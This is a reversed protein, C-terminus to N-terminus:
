TCPAELIFTSRVVISDFSGLGFGCFPCEPDSSNFRVDIVQYNFGDWSGRSIEANPTGWRKMIGGLSTRSHFDTLFRDAEQEGRSVLTACSPVSNSLSASIRAAKRTTDTVVHVQLIFTGVLVLGGIMLALLPAIIVLEAMASGKEKAHLKKQLVVPASDSLPSSIGCYRTDATTDPPAYYPFPSSYETIKVEPSAARTSLVAPRNQLGSRPCSELHKNM